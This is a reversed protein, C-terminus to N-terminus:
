SARDLYADPDYDDVVQPLFRAIQVLLEEGEFLETPINKDRMSMLSDFENAFQRVKARQGETIASSEGLKKCLGALETLVMQKMEYKAQVTPMIAELPETLEIERVPVELSTQLSNTTTVSDCSVAGSGSQQL